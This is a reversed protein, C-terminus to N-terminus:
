VIDHTQPSQSLPAPGAAVNGRIRCEYVLFRPVDRFHQPLFLFIWWSQLPATSFLKPISTSLSPYVYTYLRLKRAVFLLLIIKCSVILDDISFITM